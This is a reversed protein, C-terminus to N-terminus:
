ILNDLHHRHRHRTHVGAVGGHCKGERTDSLFICYLLINNARKKKRGSSAATGLDTRVHRLFFPSCKCLRLLRGDSARHLCLPRGVTAHLNVRLFVDEWRLCTITKKEGVKRIYVSLKLESSLGTSWESHRTYYTFTIFWLKPSLNIFYRGDQLHPRM